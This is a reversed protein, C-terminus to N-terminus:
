RNAELHTVLTSDCATPPTYGPQDSMLRALDRQCTCESDCDAHQLTSQCGAIALLVLLAGLLIVVHRM